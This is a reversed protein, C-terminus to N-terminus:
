PRSVAKPTLDAELLARLATTVHPRVGFWKAFGPAAQHLLMGLGDVTVLRRRRAAALLPTELPAYVLDAVISDAGLSSLDFDNPRDPTMGMTSANVLLNSGAIADGLNSLPATTLHGRLESALQEARALTRNVVTIRDIGRSMLAFIVARAAGGAGIVVASRPIDSWGAARDDLNALFGEVDTNDGCLKANERWLTNVAGLIAAGPAVWDCIRFAAEKHPLTVNAGVLGGAGIRKAFNAFDNPEVAIRDYAGSIGLERLWYQHILPSRSHSVPWGVVCSRRMTLSPTM